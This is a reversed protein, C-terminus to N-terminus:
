GIDAFSKSAKEIAREISKVKKEYTSAYNNSQFSDWLMSSIGFNMVDALEYKMSDKVINCAFEDREDRMRKGKITVEYFAPFVTHHSKWTMYELIIGEIEQDPITVPIFMATSNEDTGAYYNEQNEDFKPNPMFGYDAVMNKMSGSEELGCQVFLFHDTTFLAGRCWDYLHLFGTTDAGRSATGYNISVSNDLLVDHCLEIIKVIKEANLALELGGDESHVTYPVNCGKTLHVFNANSGGDERLLGYRDAGTWKGDGDLDESVAKIMDLYNEILWQNSELMDYPDSLNYDVILKKNFYVLFANSFNKMSMDSVEFFLKGGFTMEAACNSDWWQEELNIHPVNLIDLFYGKGAAGAISNMSDWCADFEDDQAQVSRQVTSTVSSSPIGTIKINFKEMTDSNRNFVADNIVEGDVNETFIYMDNYAGANFRYLMVFDDGEGNYEPLEPEDSTESEIEAETVTGSDTSIAAEDKSEACAASGALMACLLLISIIKKMM